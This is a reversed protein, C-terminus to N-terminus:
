SREKPKMAVYPEGPKIGHVKLIYYDLDKGSIHVYTAPMYRKWLSKIAGHYRKEFQHLDTM